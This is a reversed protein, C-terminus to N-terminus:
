NKVQKTNQEIKHVVQNVPIVVIFATVDESSKVFVRGDHLDVVHKVISLGIGNGDKGSEKSRYFKNFIKDQENEPISSGSNSVSIEVYKGDSVISVGLEGGFNAFKIGNDLLNIWVQKLMDENALVYFEDFDLALNLRKKTWKKELLLVCNRIQESLNFNSKETLIGQNEIKSLNLVNTTMSSLRDIEEEIISLYKIRKEKPLDDSKLLPILSSVSAIPTKMEHSFNNVFDARFIETNQLETALRNFSNAMSSLYKRRGFDMRVTFDGDALVSMGEMLKDFPQLVLRGLLFALALGIVTSAVGFVFIWYLGSKELEEQTIAGTVVIIYEVAIIMAVTFLLICAVMLIFTFRLRGRFPVEKVQSLKRDKM